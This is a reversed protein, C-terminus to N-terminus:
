EILVIESSAGLRMPPGWFGIGSSVYLKTGCALTHLGYLYPQQLLVAYGFPWIQGGHTHGSLILDPCFDDLHEIFRPQHALLITKYSGDMGCYATQLDPKYKGFRYGVLDTVGILNVGLADIVELENLLLKIKSKHRFYDITGELDHYYEHNGLVYFIGHRSKLRELEKLAPLIKAIPADTLDGTIAIIDPDLPNIRDVCAKVYEEDIIGGIHFDTIHVLRMGELGVKLKKVKPMKAGEVAAASACTISALALTANAGKQLADRRKEDFPLAKLVLRFLTHLLLFLFLVFTVGLSLSFLHYFSQSFMDAYRAVLYLINASFNLTLFLAIVRKLRKSLQLPRVVRLFFLAHFSGFLLIALAVVVFFFKSSMM